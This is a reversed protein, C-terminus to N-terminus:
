EISKEVYKAFDMPPTVTTQKIFLKDYKPGFEWKSKIDEIAANESNYEHIGYQGGWATEFWCYKKLEKDYFILATHTKGGSEENESYEIFFYRKCKYGIKELLVQALYAQDHCDGYGNKAVDKPINFKGDHKYNINLRIWKYVEKPMRLKNQSPLSIESFYSELINNSENIKVTKTDDGNLMKQKIDMFVEILQAFNNDTLRIYNYEGKDTIIREKAITKERSAKMTASQKNNVNDGGDKVEIILNFPIYYFDSIYIHKQGQYVYELTPGPTLLDKSPIQMVVDMFELCNKEYTGTYTWVGGDSHKYTGSIRRNQLMIIQQDPDNLINYTGRVRLMNKKYEERMHEKCKPNDCLVDYRATKSNWGTPSGCVRCKGCTTKNIMDFVLRAGDYGEPILEEHAKEIHTILKPREFSKTCYPCRYRRPM